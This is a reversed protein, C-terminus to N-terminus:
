SEQATHLTGIVHPGARAARRERAPRRPVTRNPATCRKLKLKYGDGRRESKELAAREGREGGGEEGRVSNLILHHRYSRRHAHSDLLFTGRGTGRGMIVECVSLPEVHGLDVHERAAILACSSAGECASVRVFRVSASCVLWVAQVSRKPPARRTSCRPGSSTPLRWLAVMGDPGSPARM